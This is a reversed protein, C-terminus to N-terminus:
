LSEAAAYEEFYAVALEFSDFAYAAGRADSSHLVLYGSSRREIEGLMALRTDSVLWRGSDWEIISLRAPPAGADCTCEEVDHHPLVRSISLLLLPAADQIDHVRRGVASVIAPPRM